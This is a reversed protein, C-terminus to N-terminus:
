SVHDPGNEPIHVPGKQVELRRLPGSQVRGEPGEAKARPPDCQYVKFGLYRAMSAVRSGVNGVGIVGFTAGSLDITKRSATGYLASFVYDM